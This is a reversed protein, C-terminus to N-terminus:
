ANPYHCMYTWLKSEMETGKRQSLMRLLPSRPTSVSTKSEYILTSGEAHRCKCQKINALDSFDSHCTACYHFVDCAQAFTLGHFAQGFTRSYLELSTGHLYEDMWTGTYKRDESFSRTTFYNAMLTSFGPVLCSRAELGLRLEAICLCVDGHKPCWSPINQLYAKNQYQLVQVIVRANERYNKISVVRMINAADEADIDSTTRDALILVAEAEMVKVRHLDKSKMVSGRRYDLRNYYLELLRSMADDPESEDLIVIQFYESLERDENYFEKLFSTMPGVRVHGCVVLHLSLVPVQYTKDFFQPVVKMRLIIQPIAKSVIGLALIQFGYIIIRGLMTQIRMGSLDLLTVRGYLYLFCRWFSILQGNYPGSTALLWPDGMNEVLHLFGSSIMLVSIVLLVLHALQITNVNRLIGRNALLDVIWLCNYARFFAFGIFYRDLVISLIVGPITFYDVISHMSHLVIDLKKENGLVRIVFYVLLYINALLDIPQHANPM